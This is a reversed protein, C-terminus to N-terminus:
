EIVIKGYMGDQAHGPVQCVYYYTGPTTAQFQLTGSAYTATQLDDTSRAALPPIGNGGGMMGSGMYPYPPAERTLVLGHPMDQGYDMNVLTLTVTADRPIHLTPEVLGGIEFTTDPKDPQVAIVNMHVRTGAFTLSNDAANVTANPASNHIAQQAASWTMAQGQYASGSMGYGGMGYGSGGMMGGGMGYGYANSGTAGLATGTMGRQALAAGLVIAGTLFLAAVLAAHRRSM